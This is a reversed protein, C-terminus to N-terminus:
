VSISSTIEIAESARTPEIDNSQKVFTKLIVNKPRGLLSFASATLSSTEKM